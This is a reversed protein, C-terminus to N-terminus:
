MLLLRVQLFDTGYRPEVPARVLRSTDTWGGSPLQTARTVRRGRHRSRIISACGLRVLPKNKQETIASDVNM